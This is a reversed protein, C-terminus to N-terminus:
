SHFSKILKLTNEHVFLWAASKATQLKGKNAELTHLVSLYINPQSPFVGSHSIDRVRGRRQYNIM